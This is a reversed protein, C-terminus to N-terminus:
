PLEPQVRGGGDAAALDALVRGGVVGHFTHSGAAASDERVWEGDLSWVPYPSEADDTASALPTVDLNVTLESEADIQALAASADALRYRLTISGPQTATEELRVKVVATATAFPAVPGPFTATPGDPFIVGANPSSVTLTPNALAEAGTNILRVTVTAVEGVDLIGDDDCSEDGTGEAILVDDFGLVGTVAFSETVPAGDSTSTPPSIAGSGFGRRAFSHALMVFDDTDSAAAAALIADRLETFTPEPPAAKFGAVVYDAYTRRAQEFTYKPTAGQSLKLMDVLGEFMMACWVEGANHVEFNPNGSFFTNVPVGAPLAEGDAIHKFTLANKTFDTSYPYRRIGYYGATDYFARTVYTSMAYTADLDDGERLAMMLASFDAIGESMAGCSQSGCNVLRHHWYHGWEHAVILNDITGDGRPEGGPPASFVYMQMRPPQGDVGTAMNANNTGSSDQAEALIADGEVGGRGFNSTQANGAAEDFGSDYWWDHLWNNVFFLQTIAAMEQTANAQPDQTVLFTRLFQGAATTTARIDSGDFGNGGSLDAYADTNNGTTSTAGDPLWPDPGGSAPHNFSEVTIDVPAVFAPQTTDPVGNPHPTYDAQPGDAPRFPATTDAWVRYTFADDFSDNARYLVRGDDAAIVHIVGRVTGGDDM